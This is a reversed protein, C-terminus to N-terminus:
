YPVIKTKWFTFKGRNERQLGLVRKGSVRYFEFLRLSFFFFSLTSYYDILDSMFLSYIHKYGLPDILSARGPNLFPQLLSLTIYTSLSVSTLYECTISCIQTKLHLTMEAILELHSSDELFMEPRNFFM